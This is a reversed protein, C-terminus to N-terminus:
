VARLYCLLKIRIKKRQFERNKEPDRAGPLTPAPQSQRSGAPARPPPPRSCAFQQGNGLGSYHHTGCNLTRTRSCGRGQRVRLPHYEQSIGASDKTSPTVTRIAAAKLFSLSRIFVFGRESSLLFVLHLPTPHSAPHTSIVHSTWCNTRYRRLFM